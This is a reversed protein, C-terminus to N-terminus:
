SYTCADAQLVAVRQRCGGCLPRCCQWATGGGRCVCMGGTVDGLLRVVISQHMGFAWSIHLLNEVSWQWQRFSSGAEYWQGGNVKNVLVEAWLVAVVHLDAVLAIWFLVKRTDTSQGGSCEGDTASTRM